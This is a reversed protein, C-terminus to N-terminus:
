LTVMFNGFPAEDHANSRCNVCLHQQRPANTSYVRRCRLCNRDVWGASSVPKKRTEREKMARLQIERRAETSPRYALQGNLIMKRIHYRIARTTIESFQATIANRMDVMSANERYLTKLVEFASPPLRGPNPGCKLM